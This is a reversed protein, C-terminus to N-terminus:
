ASPQAAKEALPKVERAALAELVRRVRVAAADGALMVPKMSWLTRGNMREGVLRVMREDEDRFATKVADVLAEDLGPVNKSYNRFFRFFYHTSLESAPTLVQVSSLVHGESRPRGTAVVGADLYFCAPPDWRMDVWYDVMDDAKCAGTMVFVPAPRGNPGMRDSYVTNGEQRVDTIGRALAESGLNGTHLYAAHSLDMLNDIILDIRLDMHMTAGRTLVYEGDKADLMSFDPIAAHNAEHDGIWVWVISDREVVEFARVTAARPIKGDGHPNHVCTGSGDFRLGHYPCQITDGVLHGQHLPAFRHPCTDALAVVKGVETRYLVIPESAIVRMLPQRTVDVDWAAMYWVNRLITM